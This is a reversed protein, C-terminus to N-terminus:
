QPRLPLPPAAMQLLPPALAQVQAAQAQRAQCCTHAPALSTTPWCPPPVQSSSPLVSLPLRQPQVTLVSCRSLLQLPRHRPQVVQAAQWPFPLRCLACCFRLLGLDPCYVWMSLHSWCKMRISSCHPVLTSWVQRVDYGSVQHGMAMMSYSELGTVVARQGYLQGHNM